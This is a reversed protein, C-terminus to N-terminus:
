NDLHHHIEKVIEEDTLNPYREKIELYLNEEDKRLKELDLNIKNVKERIKREEVEIEEIEKLIHKTAKSLDDNNKIKKVSVDNYKKLEDVKKLLFISLQKVDEHYKGLKTAQNLYDKRIFKASEILQKDIM